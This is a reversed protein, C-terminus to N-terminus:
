LNTQGVNNLLTNLYNIKHTELTYTVKTWNYNIENEKMIIKYKLTNKIIKM